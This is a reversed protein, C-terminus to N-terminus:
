LAGGEAQKVKRMSRLTITRGSALNRFHYRTAKRVHHHTGYSNQWSDFGGTTQAELFEAVVWKGSTLRVRYAKGQELTM